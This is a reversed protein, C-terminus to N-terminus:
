FFILKFNALIVFFCFLFRSVVLRGSSILFILFFIGGFEGFFISISQPGGCTPCISCVFNCVSWPLVWTFFRVDVQLRRLKSFHFFVLTVLPQFQFFYSASVPFWLRRSCSVFSPFIFTDLIRGCGCVFCLRRSVAALWHSLFIAFGCLGLILFLSFSLRLDSYPSFNISIFRVVNVCFPFDVPRWLWVPPDLFTDFQVHGFQCALCCDVQQVSVLAGFCFSYFLCCPPWTVDALRIFPVFSILLQFNPAHRCLVKSHLHASCAWQIRGASHPLYPLCLFFCHHFFFESVTSIRCFSDSVCFKECFLISKNEM